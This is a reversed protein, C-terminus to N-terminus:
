KKEAREIGLRGEIKSIRDSHRDIRDDMQQVHYYLQALFFVVVALLARIAWKIFDFETENIRKM